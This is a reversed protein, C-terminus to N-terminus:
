ISIDLRKMRVIDFGYASVELEVPIELAATKQGDTAEDAVELGPNKFDDDDDEKGERMSFNLSGADTDLGAATMAKELAARDKQLLELTEPKDAVLHASVRGSETIEMRIEIRGMEPPSIRINFRNVGNSLHKAIQLAIDRTPTQLMRARGFHMTVESINPGAMRASGTGTMHLAGTAPDVEMTAGGRSMIMDMGGALISPAPMAPAMLPQGPQPTQAQAAQPPQGQAPQSQAGASAKQSAAYSVSSGTKSKGTAESAISGPEADRLSGRKDTGVKPGAALAQQVQEASPPTTMPAGNQAAAQAKTAAMPSPAPTTGPAQAGSSGAAAKNAEGAPVQPTATPDKGPAAPANSAPPKDGDSGGAAKVTGMASAAVTAGQSAGAVPNGQMAALGVALGQPKAEDLKPGHDPSLVEGLGSGDEPQPAEPTEKAGKTDSGASTQQPLADTTGETAAAASGSHANDSKLQRAEEGQASRPANQAGWGPREATDTKQANENFKGSAASSPDHSTEPGASNPTAGQATKVSPQGEPISGGPHEGPISQTEPESTEPSAPVSTEPVGDKSAKATVPAIAVAGTKLASTGLLDSKFSPLEKNQAASRIMAATVSVTMGDAAVIGQPFIPKRVEAPASAGAENSQTTEVPAVAPVPESPAAADRAIESVTQGHTTMDRDNRSADEDDLHRQFDSRDLDADRFNDQRLNSANQSARASNSSSNIRKGDDSPWPQTGPASPFPTLQDVPFTMADRKEEHVVM